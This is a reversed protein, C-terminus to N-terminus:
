RAAGRWRRSRPCATPGCSSSSTSSATSTPLSWVGSCGPKTRPTACCSGSPSTTVGLIPWALPHRGAACHARAHLGSAFLTRTAAHVAAGTVPVILKIHADCCRDCCSAAVDIAGIWWIPLRATNGSHQLRRGARGGAAQPHGSAQSRARRRRAAGLGAAHVDYGCTMDRRRSRRSSPVHRLPAAFTRLGVALQPLTLECEGPPRAERSASRTAMGVDGVHMAATLERSRWGGCAEETRPGSSAMRARLYHPAGRRVSKRVSSSVFPASDSAACACGAASPEAAAYAGALHRGSVTPSSSPVLLVALREADVRRSRFVGFDSGAMLSRAFVM